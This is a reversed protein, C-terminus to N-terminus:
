SFHPKEAFPNERISERSDGRNANHIAPGDLYLPVDASRFHGRLLKLSSAFFPKFVAFVSRFFLGFRRQLIKLGRKDPNELCTKRSTGEPNRLPVTGPGGEPQDRWTAGLVRWFHAWLLTGPVLGSPM